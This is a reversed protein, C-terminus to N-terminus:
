YLEVPVSLRSQVCSIRHQIFSYLTVQAVFNYWYLTEDQWM